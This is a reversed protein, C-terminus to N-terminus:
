LEVHDVFLADSYAKGKVGRESACANVGSKENPLLRDDLELLVVRGEFADNDVSSDDHTLAVNLVESRGVEEGVEVRVDDTRVDYLGERGEEERRFGLM